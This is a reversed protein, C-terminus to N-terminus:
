LNQLQRPGHAPVKVNIRFLALKSYGISNSNWNAVNKIIVVFM